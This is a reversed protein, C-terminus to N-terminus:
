QAVRLSVEGGHFAELGKQTELLLAGTANVGRMIGAVQHNGMFLDVPLNAQANLAEWEDKFVSFGLSEYHHLLPVIHNLLCSAVRNRSPPEPLIADLAVWPQDIAQVM